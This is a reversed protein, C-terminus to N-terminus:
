DEISNFTSTGTGGGGTSTGTLRRYLQFGQDDKASM